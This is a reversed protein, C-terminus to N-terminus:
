TAPLDHTPAPADHPVLPSSPPSSLPSASPSDPPRASAALIDKIMVDWRMNLSTIECHLTPQSSTSLRKLASGLRELANVTRGPSDDSDCGLQVAMQAGGKGQPGKLSFFEKSSGPTWPWRKNKYEQRIVEYTLAGAFVRQRVTRGPQCFYSGAAFLEVCIMEGDDALVIERWVEDFNDIFFYLFPYTYEIEEAKKKVDMRIKNPVAFVSKTVKRLVALKGRRRDDPRHRISVELTYDFKHLLVNLFFTEEWNISTDASAPLRARDERRRVYFKDDADKIGTDRLESEQRLRVSSRRVFYLLDDTAEKDVVHLFYKDFLLSWYEENASSQGQWSCHRLVEQLLDKELRFQTSQQPEYQDIIVADKLWRNEIDVLDAASSTKEIYEFDEM